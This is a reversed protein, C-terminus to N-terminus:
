PASGLYQKVIADYTGNARIVKLGANFGDRVRAERFVAKRPSEPFIRHQTVAQTGDIQADLKGSFYRFILHDGVVVDVRGMFLLKDPTIQSAYEKYDQHKSAVLRFREGLLMSAGQFAAVSYNALDEIRRLDLHRSGLTTAVNQYVIYTDTFYDKGGIGENTSLMGDLQGGRLMLLARTQPLLQGVLKYGGAALAQKAIDYDLGADGSEMIYPPKPLGMGVHVDQLGAGHAHAAGSLAGASAVAVAVARTIARAIAFLSRKGAPAPLQSPRHLPMSGGHQSQYSVCYVM